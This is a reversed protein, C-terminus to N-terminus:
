LLEAPSQLLQGNAVTVTVPNSVTTVRALFSSVSTSIFSHSSESDLLILVECGQIVGKLKLTKPAEQRSVVAVSIAVFLQGTSSEIGEV